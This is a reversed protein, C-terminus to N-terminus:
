FPLQKSHSLEDPSEGCKYTPIVCTEKTNPDTLTIVTNGDNSNDIKSSAFTDFSRELLVRYPPDELIHVQLAIDLHGMRLVPDDAVLYGKPLKESVDEMLMFVLAALDQLRVKKSRLHDTDMVSPTPKEALKRVRTVQKKIEERVATSAGALSRLSVNVEIDLVQEVLKEIDVEEEVPAHSKYAQPSKGHATGQATQMVPCAVAKLPPVEVYPLERRKQATPVEEAPEVDTKDVEEIRKDKQSRKTKREAHKQKISPSFDM